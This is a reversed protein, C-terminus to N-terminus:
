GDIPVMAQMGGSATWLGATTRFRTNLCISRQGGFEQFLLREEM